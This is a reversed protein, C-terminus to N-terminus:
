ALNLQSFYLNNWRPLRRIYISFGIFSTAPNWLKWYMNWAFWSIICKGRQHRSVIWTFLQTSDLSHSNIYIGIGPLVYLWTEVSRYTHRRCMLVYVNVASKMSMHTDIRLCSGCCQRRWGNCIMHWDSMFRRVLMTCRTYIHSLTYEFTVKIHWLTDGQQRMCNFNRTEHRPVACCRRPKTLKSTCKM